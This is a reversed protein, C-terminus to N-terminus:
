KKKKKEKTESEAPKITIKGEAIEKMAIDTVSTLGDTNTLPRHGANLQRVRHSIVNTLMHPNPFQKLAAELFQNKM